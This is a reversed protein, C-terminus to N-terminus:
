LDYKHQDLNYTALAVRAHDAIEVASELKTPALGARLSKQWAPEVVQQTKARRLAVSAVLERRGAGGGDGVYAFDEADLLELAVVAARGTTTNAAQEQTIRDAVETAVQSGTLAFRARPSPMYRDRDNAEARALAINAAVPRVAARALRLRDDRYAASSRQKAGELWAAWEAVKASATTIASAAPAAADAADLAASGLGGENRM